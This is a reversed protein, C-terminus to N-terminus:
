VLDAASRAGRERLWDALTSARGGEAATREAADLPTLTDWGIWNIEAGHELPLPENLGLLAVIERANPRSGLEIM